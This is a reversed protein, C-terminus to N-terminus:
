EQYQQKTNRMWEAFEEVVKPIHQQKLLLVNRKKDNKYLEWDLNTVALRDNEPSDTEYQNYETDEWHHIDYKNAYLMETYAYVETERKVWDYFPDIVKNITCIIWWYDQNGYTQEALLEPTMDESIRVTYYLAEYKRVSKLMDIRHTIDSITVGNYTLKPLTQSYKPM